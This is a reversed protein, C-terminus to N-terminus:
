KHLIFSMKLYCHGLTVLDAAGVARPAGPRSKLGQVLHLKLSSDPCRGPVPLPAPHQLEQPPPRVGAGLVGAAVGGQVVRGPRTMAINHLYTTVSDNLNLNLMKCKM